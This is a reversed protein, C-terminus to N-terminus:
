SGERERERRRSKTEREVRRENEKRETGGVEMWSMQEGEVCM